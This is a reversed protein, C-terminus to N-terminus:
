THFLNKLTVDIAFYHTVKSFSDGIIDNMYGVNLTTKQKPLKLSYYLTFRSDTYNFEEWYNTNNMAFLFEETTIIKQTKNKNLNIKVKGRLRIRFQYKKNYISFDPNFFFRFEPRLTFSFDLNDLTTLYSYKSYTRIEQRASPTDFEFPKTAKYNNQWRYSLAGAYEWHTAFKHKIEENIVYIAAREGPNYNEPNSTRGVGFYTTSTTTEKKNLDQKLGIAFWEATNVKGLGPPTFQAFCSSYITVTFLSALTISHITKM